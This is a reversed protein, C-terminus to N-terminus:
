EPHALISVFTGCGTQCFSSTSALWCVDSYYLLHQLRRIAIAPLRWAREVMLKWQIPCTPLLQRRILTEAFTVFIIKAAQYCRQTSGGHNANSSKIEDSSSDRHM